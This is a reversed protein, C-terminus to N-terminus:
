ITEGLSMVPFELPFGGAELIGNKVYVAIDRLHGNCPTVQGGVGIGVFAMPDDGTHPLVIAGFHDDRSVAIGAPKSGVQLTATKRLSSLDIVSVSDDGQNTVFAFRTEAHAQMFGACLTAFLVWALPYRRNSPTSERM